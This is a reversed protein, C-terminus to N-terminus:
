GGQWAKLGQEVIKLLAPIEDPLCVDFFNAAMVARWAAYLKVPAQRLSFKIM